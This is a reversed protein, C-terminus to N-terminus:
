TSVEPVPMYEWGLFQSANNFRSTCLARSKYCGLSITFNDGTAAIFPFPYLPLVVAGGALMVHSKVTRSLGANAGSTFTIRGLTYLNSAGSDSFSIEGTSWSDVVTRSVTFDAARLGCQSDFLTHTCSPQYVIRPVQANLLVAASSVTLEVKSLDMVVDTINGEFLHIAGLSTDGYSPMVALEIKLHANDFGGILTFNPVSLVGMVSGPYCHLTVKCEDVSLGVSLTIDGREARVNGVVYTMIGTALLDSMIIINNAIYNPIYLMGTVPDAVIQRPYTVSASAVIAATLPNVYVIYGDCSVVLMGSTTLTIFTPSVFGAYSALVVGTSKDIKAISNGSTNVAWLASGDSTLGNVVIGTTTTLISLDAALKYLVNDTRGLWLNAGDWFLYTGGLLRSSVLNGSSDLKYVWGESTATYVYGGGVEVSMPIGFIASYATTLLTGTTSYKGLGAGGWLGIIVWLASGDFTIGGYIVGSGADLHPMGTIIATVAQTTKNVAYVAGEGQVFVTSASQTAYRPISATLSVPAPLASGINIDGDGSTLRLVTGNALTLTFLEAVIFEYGTLQEMM